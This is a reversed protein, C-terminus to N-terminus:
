NVGRQWDKGSDLFREPLDGSQELIARYRWEFAKRAEPLVIKRTWDKNAKRKNGDLMEDLSRGKFTEDTDYHFFITMFPGTLHSCGDASSVIQVEIPAQAIDLELKKDLTDINKIAADVFDPEFGLETLKQRGATQTMQYENDYDLIKGYDHLWVMVEVLDHDAKPYYECLEFAIREVVELHWKVFWKHHYFDPNASVERVHQKFAEIKDRM